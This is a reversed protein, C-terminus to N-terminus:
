KSKECMKKLLAYTKNFTKKEDPHRELFDNLDDLAAKYNKRALHNDVLVIVPRNDDPNCVLVHRCYKASEEYKGDNNANRAKYLFIEAVLEKDQMVKKQPSFLDAKKVIGDSHTHEFYQKQGGADLMNYIHGPIFINKMDIGYRRCVITYRISYSLCNGVRLNLTDKIDYCDNYVGENANKQLWDFLMKARLLQGTSKNVDTEKDIRSVLQDIKDLYQRMKYESAVGSAILCARDFPTDLKGDELDRILADELTNADNTGLIGM